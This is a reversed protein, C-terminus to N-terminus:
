KADEPPTAPFRHGWNGARELVGRDVLDRVVALIRAKNGTVTNSIIKASCRSADGQWGRVFQLVRDELELDSVVERSHGNRRTPMATGSLTLKGTMPDFDLGEPALDADRGYAKLYRLGLTEDDDERLIMTWIADPEDLLRSAGRSREGEHGSHHCIFDDEVGAERLVDTWWSFFVAIDSNSNEDLGFAALAPALPDLIVVEADHSRLFEVLRGRGTESILGLASADGRLNVVIVKDANVVGSRRLWARITRESVELNFLVVNRTVPKVEFRGLFQGGDVLCPLLNGVVLTTKGAKAQAALLARGENWLSEVREQTVPDPQALFTTLPIGVMEPVEGMRYEEYRLKAEGRVILKALEERVMRDKASPPEADEGAEGDGDAPPPQPPIVEDMWDDVSPPCGQGQPESAVVAVAGTINRRWEANAEERTRSGDGTVEALFMQRLRQLTPKAGSCGRRGAGLVALAAQNYTDHRSEGKAFAKAAARLVHECPEGDPLGNLLANAESDSLDTKTLPGRDDRLREVGRDPLAPIESRLPPTSRVEGTATHRWRYIRGDPHVSPWVMAYRHHRQIFDIGAMKTVLRIGPPITFLRIGSITDDDRNFAMWTAPLPGCENILTLLTVGGTKEGYHDVDIGVDGDDMVMAINNVGHMAWEALDAGSPVLGDYGTYGTPVPAKTAYPTPVVRRWGADLYVQYQEFPNSPEPMARVTM